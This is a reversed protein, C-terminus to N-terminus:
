LSGRDNVRKMLDLLAPVTLVNTRPLYVTVTTHNDSPQSGALSVWYSCHRLILQETSLAIWEEPDKPVTVLVLLRPVCPDELILGAYNKRKLPYHIQDGSGDDGTWTKMQIDIKPRRSFLKCSVTWDIGDFDPRRLAIDCGALAAVALLFADGFCEQEASLAVGLSTLDSIGAHMTQWAKMDYKCHTHLV